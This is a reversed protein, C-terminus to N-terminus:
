PMKDPVRDRRGSCELRDKKDSRSLARIRASIGSKDFEGTFDVSGHRFVHNVPDGIGQVFSLFATLPLRIRM